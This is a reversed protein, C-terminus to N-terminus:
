AAVLTAGSVLPLYRDGAFFSYKAPVEIKCLLRHHVPAPAQNAKVVTVVLETSDVALSALELALYDPLYGVLRTDGTRLLLAHSGHPNQEDRVVLLEDGSRVLAIADEAGPIHRVGRVLFHMHQTDGLRTPTNFIELEDTTRHGGSRGLVELAGAGPALGLESVFVPYDPRSAPMVRNSFLAPLRASRYIVNLDPFAVLPLFGREQAQHVARIYAFEYGQEGLSVLRGIPMIKRSEMCQWALFVYNPSSM